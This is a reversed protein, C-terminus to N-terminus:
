PALRRLAAVLGANPAISPRVRRVRDLADLGSVGLRRALYLAAVAGTRSVGSVCHVFVRWGEARFTEIAEVAQVLAADLNRPAMATADDVLWVEHHHPTRVQEPRLRCLSVFADADANALAEINGILVDPDEALPVAVPAFDGPEWPTTWDGEHRGIAAGLRVLDGDGWGPWGHLLRTWRFPLTSAGRAAGLLQGTIAGVTDADDGGAVVSRLVDDFSAREGEVLASWAAQLAHVVYGTPSFDTPSKHEAESLVDNWFARRTPPLLDIGDRVGDTRAARVARDIGACWLVCAEGALPDGHTLASVRMPAEALAADDGLHALAVPATRMLSGNGASHGTRDFHERAITALDAGSRAAGLVARTQNGIDRAAHSWELFADGIAALTSPAGLDPSVAAVRGICIAMETDDTWEGPSWRLPGGGIMDVTTPDVPPGFEYGAGLADGVALGLLAGAARDQQEAPLTV